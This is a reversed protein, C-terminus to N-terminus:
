ANKEFLKNINKIPALLYTFSIVRVTTSYYKLQYIKFVM